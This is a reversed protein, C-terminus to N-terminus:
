PWAVELAHCAGRTLWGYESDPAPNLMKMVVPTAGPGSYFLVQVYVSPYSIDIDKIWGSDQWGEEAYWSALERGGVEQVVFLGRQAVDGGIDFNIRLCSNERPEKTPTPTVTETVCPFTPCGGTEATASPTPTITGTSTATPTATNTGTPTPTLTGTPTSTLTGTATPTSTQTSTPTATSTAPTATNTPTSTPTEDPPTATDTPTPTNQQECINVWGGISDIADLILEGDTPVTFSGGIVLGQEITHVVEDGIYFQNIRDDIDDDIGVYEVLCGASVFGLSEQEHHVAPPAGTADPSSWVRQGNEATYVPGPVFMFWFGQAGKVIFNNGSDVTFTTEGEAQGLYTLTPLDASVSETQQDTQRLSLSWLILIALIVAFSAFRKM